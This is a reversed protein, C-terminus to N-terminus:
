QDQRIEKVYIGPGYTGGGLCMARVNPQMFMLPSSHTMGVISADEIAPMQAQKLVDNRQDPRRFGREPM